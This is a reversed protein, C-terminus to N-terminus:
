PKEPKEEKEKQAQAAQIVSTKNYVYAHSLENEHIIAKFIIRHLEEKDLKIVFAVNEIKEQICDNEGCESGAMMQFKEMLLKQQM